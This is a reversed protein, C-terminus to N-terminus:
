KPRVIEVTIKQRVDLPKDPDGVVTMPLVKGLLACFTRPDSNAVGELYKQGGQADLAALITEKLDKTLKNPTGKQRGGRREGKRIGNSPHPKNSTAAVKTAEGKAPGLKKAM